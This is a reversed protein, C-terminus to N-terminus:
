LNFTARIMEDIVKSTSGPTEKAKIGAVPRTQLLFIKDSSLSDDSIAWEMDQPIGFHAELAKALEAIRIVEDDNLCSILRKDSPIEQEVAGKDTAVVQMEKDGIVKEIIELTNKDVVFKDPILTGSVVSEGLGWNGEIMIKSPDGSVPDCTFGVGACRANVLELVCVGIPASDEVLMGKHDMASLTRANYISSWVKVIKQLVDDSGRVNLYTEYQGPHSVTGASRVSVAVESGCRDCLQEYYSIITDRMDQPMEKAEVIRRLGRSAEEYQKLGHVKGGFKDLFQRIEQDANTETLFREEAKVSLSFGRPVPLGMKTMEGLNACKKGVINNHEKGIEEFWFIWKESMKAMGKMSIIKHTWDVRVECRYTDKLYLFLLFL